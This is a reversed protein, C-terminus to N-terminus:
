FAKEIALLYFRASEDERLKLSLTVRLHTEDLEESSEEMSLFNLGLSNPFVWSSGDESTFIIFRHCPTHKPWVFSFHVRQNDPDIRFSPLRQQNVEQQDPDGLGYFYYLIDAIGNGSRDVQDESGDTAMGHELRFAGLPDPIVELVLINSSVVPRFDVYPSNDCFLDFNGDITAATAIQFQKGLEPVYDSPVQIVLGAGDQVGDQIFLRDRVTITDFESDSLIDLLLRSQVQFSLNGNVTLHGAASSDEGVEVSGVDLGGTITGDGVVSGSSGSIFTFLSVEAGGVVELRGGFLSIGFIDLTAGDDLRLLGEDWITLSRGGTVFQGPSGSNEDFFNTEARTGSIELTGAEIEALIFGEPAVNLKGNVTRFVGGRLV